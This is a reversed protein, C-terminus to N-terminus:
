VEIEFISEYLGESELYEFDVEYTLGGATLAVEVKADLSPDRVSSYVELRITQINLYNKNDAYLTTYPGDLYVGYPLAPPKDWHHYAWPIGVPSLIALLKEYTM